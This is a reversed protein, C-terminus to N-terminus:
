FDPRPGRAIPKLFSIDNHRTLIFQENQYLFISLGCTDQRIKWFHSDGLGLLACIIVKNVVRHGVTVITGSHRQIVKNIFRVGRKRADELAEGDPMRVQEPYKMWTAYLEGYKKQVEELTLGQWRGFNLDILDAEANVSIKHSKAIAGATQLARQLPSSYVAEITTSGLYEALLEAQKVGTESLGIDIQGRFLESVNWETEGHRVVIIETM